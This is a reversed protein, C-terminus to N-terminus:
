VSHGLWYIASFDRGPEFAEEGSGCHLQELDANDNLEGLQFRRLKGHRVEFQQGGIMQTEKKSTWEPHSSSQRRWQGNSM